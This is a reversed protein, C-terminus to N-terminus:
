RHYLHGSSSPLLLLATSSLLNSVALLAVSISLSQAEGEFYFAREVVAFSGSLCLGFRNRPQSKHNLLKHLVHVSNCLVLVSVNHLTISFFLVLQFYLKSYITICRPSVLPIKTNPTRPLSILFFLLPALHLSFRVLSINVFSPPPFALSLPGYKLSAFPTDTYLSFRLFSFRKRKYYFHQVLKSKYQVMQFNM